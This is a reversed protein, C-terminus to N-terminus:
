EALSPESLDVEAPLSVFSLRKDRAITEYTLVADVVGDQLPKYGGALIQDENEDGRLIRQKLGPIRYLREALEPVFLVRYGGPDARPDNRGFRFGPRQLLEHWALAGAAAADLEARFRSRPGYVLAMRNRAITVYWSALDNNQAGMLLANTAVDASLYVDATI